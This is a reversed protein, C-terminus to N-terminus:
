PKLCIFHCSSFRPGLALRHLPFLYTSFYQEPTRLLSTAEPLKTGLPPCRNKGLTVKLHFLVTGLWGVKAKQLFQFLDEPRCSM